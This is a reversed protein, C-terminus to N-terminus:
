RWTYSAGINSSDTHMRSRCNHSVHLATFSFAPGVEYLQGRVEAVVNESYESFPSCTPVCQRALSLGMYLGGIADDDNPLVQSSQHRPM